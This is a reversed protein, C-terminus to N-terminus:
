NKSTNSYQEMTELLLAGSVKETTQSPTDKFGLFEEKVEEAENEQRHVHKVCISVRELTSYRHGRRSFCFFM